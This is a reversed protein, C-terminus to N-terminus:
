RKASPSKTRAPRKAPGSTSKKSRDAAPEESQLSAKWITHGDTLGSATMRKGLNAAFVGSGYDVSVAEWPSIASLEYQTGDDATIVYRNMIRSILGTVSLDKM